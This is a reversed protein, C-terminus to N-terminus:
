IEPAVLDDSILRIGGPVDVNGPRLLGGEFVSLELNLEFEIVKGKFAGENWEFCLDEM